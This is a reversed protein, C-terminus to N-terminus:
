EFKSASLTYHNDQQFYARIVLNLDEEISKANCMTLFFFGIFKIMSREVLPPYFLFHGKILIM